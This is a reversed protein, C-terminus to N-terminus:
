LPQDTCADHTQYYGNLVLTPDLYKWDDQYGMGPCTARAEQHLHDGTGAYGTTGIPTGPSITDGAAVSSGLMHGYQITIQNGGQTAPDLAVQIEGVGVYDCQLSGDAAVTGTCYSGCGSCLVTGSMTETAQIPTGRPYAIDYGYHGYRSGGHAEQYVYWDPNVVPGGYESSVPAEAGGAQNMMWSEDTGPAAANGGNPLAVVDMTGTVEPPRAPTENGPMGQQTGLPLTGFVGGEPVPLTETGMQRGSGPFLGGGPAPDITVRPQPQINPTGPPPTAAGLQGANPAMPMNGIDIALQSPQGITAGPAPASAGAAIGMITEIDHRYAAIYAPDTQGAYESQYMYMFRDLDTAGQPNQGPANGSVLAAFYGIQGENTTLDYGLQAASREHFQPQIQLLGFSTSNPNDALENGGSEMAIAAKILNPDVGWQAAAQAIQADWQNVNNWDLGQANPLQLGAEPGIVGQPSGLSGTGGAPAAGPTAGLTQPLGALTDPHMYGGPTAGTSAAPTGEGGLQGLYNQYHGLYDGSSTGLEDVFNGNVNGGFYVNVVGDWGYTDLVTGGGGGWQSAPDDAINQLVTGVAYAAYEPDSVIRNYDLGYSEAVSQYIGSNLAICGMEPRIECNQTGTKGYVDGGTELTQVAKIVNGPVGTSQSAADYAGNLSDMQDGPWGPGYSGTSTAGPNVKGGPAANPDNYVLGGPTVTGARGPGQVVPLGGPTQGTSTPAQGPTPTQGMPPRSQQNGSRIMEEVATRINGGLTGSQQQPFPTQKGAIRGQVTSAIRDGLGSLGAIGPAQNQPAQTPGPTGFNTPRPRPRVSQVAAAATGQQPSNYILGGPTVTGARGPPQITPVNKAARSEQSAKSNPDAYGGGPIGAAIARQHAALEQPSAAQRPAPPIQANAKMRELAEPSAYSGNVTAPTRSQTQSVNVVPPQTTSTATARGKATATGPNNQVTINLAEMAPSTVNFPSGPPPGPYPTDRMLHSGPFAGPQTVNFPSGPPPGPYPTDRMLQSGPFAGPQTGMRDNPNTMPPASVGPTRSQPSVGPGQPFPTSSGPVDRRQPQGYIGTPRTPTTRPESASVANSWAPGGMAAVASDRIAISNDRPKELGAINWNGRDDRYIGRNSLDDFVRNTIDAIPGEAVGRTMSRGFDAAANMRGGRLNANRAEMDMGRPDRRDPMRSPGGRLRQMLRSIEFRELGQPRRNVM